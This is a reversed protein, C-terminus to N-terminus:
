WFGHFIYFIIITALSCKPGLGNSLFSVFQKESLKTLLDKVQGSFCNLSAQKIKPVISLVTPSVIQAILDFQGTKDIREEALAIGSSDFNKLQTSLVVAFLFLQLTSLSIIPM